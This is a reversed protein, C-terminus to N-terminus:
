NINKLNKGNMGLAHDADLFKKAVVHSNGKQAQFPFFDKGDKEKQKQSRSKHPNM